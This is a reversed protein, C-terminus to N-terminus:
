FIRTINLYTFSATAGGKMLSISITFGHSCNRMTEIFSVVTLETTRLSQCQWLRRTELVYSMEHARDGWCLLNKASKMKKLISKTNNERERYGLKAFHWFFYAVGFVWKALNTLLCNRHFTSIIREAGASCTLQLWAATMDLVYVKGLRFTYCADTCEAKCLFLYIELYILCPCYSFM